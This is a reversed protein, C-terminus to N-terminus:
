IHQVMLTLIFDSTGTFNILNLFIIRWRATAMRIYLITVLNNCRTKPLYSIFHEPMHRQGLSSDVSYKQRISFKHRYPIGRAPKENRKSVRLSTDFSGYLLFFTVGFARLLSLRTIQINLYVNAILISKV